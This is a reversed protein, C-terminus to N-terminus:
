IVIVKEPRLPCNKIGRHKMLYNSIFKIFLLLVYGRINKGAVRMVLFSQHKGGSKWDMLLVALKNAIDKHEVDHHISVNAM